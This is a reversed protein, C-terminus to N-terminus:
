SVIVNASGTVTPLLVPYIATTILSSPLFYKLNCLTNIGSPLKNSNVSVSFLLASVAPKCFAFKDGVLTAELLLICWFSGTTLVESSFLESLSCYSRSGSATFLSASFILFRESFSSFSFSSNFAFSLFSRLKRSFIARSSAFAAFASRALLYVLFSTAGATSSISPKVSSCTFLRAFPKASSPIDPACFSRIM